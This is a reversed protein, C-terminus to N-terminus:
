GVFCLLKRTGEAHSAIAGMIANLYTHIQLNIFNHQNTWMEVIYEM